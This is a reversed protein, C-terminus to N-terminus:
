QEHLEIQVTVNNPPLKLYRSLSERAKDRQKQKAYIDPLKRYAPELSPDMEM